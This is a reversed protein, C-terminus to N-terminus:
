SMKVCAPRTTSLPATMPPSRGLVTSAIPADCDAPRIVTSYSRTSGCIRGTNSPYANTTPAAGVRTPVSGTNWNSDSVSTRLACRGASV